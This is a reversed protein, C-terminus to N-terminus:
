EQMCSGDKVVLGGMLVTAGTSAELQPVPMLKCLEQWEPCQQLSLPQQELPVHFHFLLVALLTLWAKLMVEAKTGM